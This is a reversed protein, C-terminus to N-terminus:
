TIRRRRQASGLVHGLLVIGLARFGNAIIPVLISAIVFGVRRGTSRYMLCAYLM